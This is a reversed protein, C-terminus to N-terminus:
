GWDVSCPITLKNFALKAIVKEVVRTSCKQVDFTLKMHNFM